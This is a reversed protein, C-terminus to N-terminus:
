PASSCVHVSSDPLEAGALPRRRHRHSQLQSRQEVRDALWGRGTPPPTSAPKLSRPDRRSRSWCSPSRFGLCEFMANDSAWKAPQCKCLFSPLLIVQM